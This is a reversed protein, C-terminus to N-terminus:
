RSPISRGLVRPWVVRRWARRTVDLEPSVACDVRTARRSCRLVPEEESAAVIAAAVEESEAEVQMDPPPFLRGELEAFPLAVYRALANWDPRVSAAVVRLDAEEIRGRVRVSASPEASPASGMPLAGIVLEVDVDNLDVFLGNAVDRLSLPQNTLGAGFRISQAGQRWTLVRGDENGWSGQELGEDVLLMLFVHQSPGDEDVFSLLAEVVSAIPLAIPTRLRRTRRSLRELRRAAILSGEATEYDRASFGVLAEAAREADRRGVVGDEVLADRLADASVSSLARRRLLRWKEPDPPNRALAQTAIEAAAAGDHLEDLLLHALAENMAEDAAYVRLARQLLAEAARM